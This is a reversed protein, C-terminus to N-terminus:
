KLFSIGDAKGRTKKPRTKIEELYREAEERTSVYYESRQVGMVERKFLEQPSGYQDIVSFWSGRRENNGNFAPQEAISYVMVRSNSRITSPKISVYEVGNVNTNRTADFENDVLWERVMEPDLLIHHPIPTEENHDLSDFDFVKAGKKLTYVSVRGYKAAFDETTAYYMGSVYTFNSRHTGGVGRYLTLAESTTFSHKDLMIPQRKYEPYIGTAKSENFIDFSKIHSM